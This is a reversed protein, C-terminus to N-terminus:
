DLKDTVVFNVTKSLKRCEAIRVKDGAKANICPPNHASLRSRSKKYREYKRVKVYYDRQVIVTKNMKDSVVVGELLLGRTPLTGHKPCNVDGCDAEKKNGKKEAM